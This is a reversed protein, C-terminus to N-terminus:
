PSSIGTIAPKKEVQGVHAVGAGREPDERRGRSGTRMKKKM